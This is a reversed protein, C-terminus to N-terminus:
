QNRWGAGRTGTLNTDAMPAGATTCARRRAPTQIKTSAIETGANKGAPLLLIEWTGQRDM